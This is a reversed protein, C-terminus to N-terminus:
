TACIARLDKIKPVNSSSTSRLVIKFQITGFSKDSLLTETLDYRVESFSNENVPIAEM